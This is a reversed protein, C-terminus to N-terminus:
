WKDNIDKNQRRKLPLKVCTKSYGSNIIDTAQQQQQQQQQQESHTYKKIKSGLTLIM